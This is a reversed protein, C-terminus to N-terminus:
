STRVREYAVDINTPDSLDIVDGTEDVVSRPFEELTTRWINDIDSSSLRVFNSSLNTGVNRSQVYEIM